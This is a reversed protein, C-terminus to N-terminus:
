GKEFVSFLRGRNNFGVLVCVVALSKLGKPPRCWLYHLIGVRGGSVLSDRCAELIKTPPPYEKHTYKLADESSYPPDALIFNYPGGPYPSVTADHIYTPNLEPTIDLFLDHEGKGPAGKYSEAKGSCVHLLPDTIKAGLLTRARSLFGCPYAGYYAVKPRALIWVDTVPRFSM